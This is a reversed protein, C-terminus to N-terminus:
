PKQPRAANILQALQRPYTDSGEPGGIDRVGVGFTLSDGLCLITRVGQLNRIQEFVATALSHYGKATLHVGDSSWTRTAGGQSALIRNFDVIPLNRKEAIGVIIQNLESIRQGPARSGYVGPQHRQMLRAVDPQHVTVMVVRVQAKHCVNMINELHVRSSEPLLFKKENVADNMGAFLVIIDPSSGKVERAIRDDIDATNEGPIGRNIVSIQALCQASLLIALICFHIRRSM